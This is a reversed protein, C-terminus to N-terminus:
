PTRWWRGAPLTRNSFKKCTQVKHPLKMESKFSIGITILYQAYCISQHITVFIKFIGWIGCTFTSTKDQCKSPSSCNLVHAGTVPKINCPVFSYGATLHACRIDYTLPTIPLLLARIIFVSRPVCLCIDPAM